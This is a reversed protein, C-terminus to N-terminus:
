TDGVLWPILPFVGVLPTPVQDTTDPVALIVLENDAVDATVPRPTPLLTNCHIITAAPVQEVVLEVIVMWTSGAALIATAPGFWVKHIELGVVTNAPFVGVLPTPVQDTTDPVALIV